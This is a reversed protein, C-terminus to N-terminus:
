TQCGVKEFQDQMAENDTLDVAATAKDRAAKLKERLQATEAKAAFEAAPVWAFADCQAVGDAFGHNAM